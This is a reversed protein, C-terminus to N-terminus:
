AVAATADRAELKSREQNTTAAECAATTTTTIGTRKPSVSARPTHKFALNQYEECCSETAAKLHM